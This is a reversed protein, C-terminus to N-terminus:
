VIITAFIRCYYIFKHKNKQYNRANRNMEVCKKCKELFLPVSILM